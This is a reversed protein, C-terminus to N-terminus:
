GASHPALFDRSGARDGGHQVVPALQRRSWSDAIQMVANHDEFFQRLERSLEPYAAILEDPDRSEGKADADLYEAIARELRQENEWASSPGPRDM